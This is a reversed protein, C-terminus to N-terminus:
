RRPARASPVTISRTRTAFIPRGAWQGGNARDNTEDCQAICVAAKMAGRHAVQSLGGCRGGSRRAKENKDHTLAARVADPSNHAATQNLPYEQGRWSAIAGADLPRDFRDLPGEGEVALRHVDALLDDVVHVDDALELLAAGDEDVRDRLHGLARRDDEGRVADGRGHPDLRELALQRRDVRRAREHRLHVRLRLAVRLAAVRDHQDAVGSVLLDLSRGALRRVRGDEDLRDGVGLGDLQRSVGSAYMVCVVSDTSSVRSITATSFRRKGRMSPGSFSSM